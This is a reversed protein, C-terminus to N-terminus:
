YSQYSKEEILLSGLLINIQKKVAARKDNDIYVRRALDIFRDDFCQRRECDRKGEEIDWLGTNIARLEDVLSTLEMPFRSIDGVVGEIAKREKEVNALKISDTLKSAKIQLITLKDFVEGWAVPLLPISPWTSPTM